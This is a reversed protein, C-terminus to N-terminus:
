ATQKQKTTGKEQEKKWKALERKYGRLLRSNSKDIDIMFALRKGLKIDLEKMGSHMSMAIGTPTESTAYVKTIIVGRQGLEELKRMIGRILVRVYNERTAKDTEQESAIIVFCELPKGPEFTEIDEYRIEWGRIKGEIFEKLSEPEVPLLHFFAVIKNNHKVLFSSEPNKMLWAQRVEANPTIRNIARQALKYVEEMDAATALVFMPKSTEKTTDQESSATKDPEETKQLDPPGEAKLRFSKKFLQQEEHYADVSRKTYFGHEYGPPTVKEIIGKNVLNTLTSASIGLKKRAETSTYLENANTTQEIKM